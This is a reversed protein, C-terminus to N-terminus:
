PLMERFREPDDHFCDGVVADAGAALIQLDAHSTRSSASSCTRRSRAM